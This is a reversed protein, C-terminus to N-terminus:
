QINASHYLLYIFQGHM